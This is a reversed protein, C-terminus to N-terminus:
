SRRILGMSENCSHRVFVLDRFRDEPRPALLDMEFDYSGTIRGEEDIRYTRSHALVVSPDSDLVEVCRRLFEPHLLDDYTVWKFYEGKSETFARTYNASLGLNHENRLYRIRSDRAAYKRCIAETGDTSANDSIVLEFETFTQALVSDLTAGLFREGNFVPLGLGVRAM